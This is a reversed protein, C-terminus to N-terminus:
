LIKDKYYVKRSVVFSNKRQYERNFYDFYAGPSILGHINILDIGAQGVISDALLVCNTSLAFYTKFPGKLFKYFKGGLVEYVLSPYDDEPREYPLGKEEYVKAKPKWEYLNSYIEEIKDKVRTKQDESLRLGFAFITKGIYDHSFKIYADMDDMEILVGDSILGSLKYTDTDYTGYTMVKGEFCIDVHGFAGVGKESVHVLVELDQKENEKEYGLDEERIDETDFAENIKSLVKRPILALMFVPLNIRVRRKIKNKEEKPLGDLLADILFSLGYLLFFIGILNTLPLIADLPNLVILIGIVLLIFSEIVVYFRRPVRNARYQIYTLFRIIASVIAYIGFFIPLIGIVVLPKYFILGAMGINVIFSIFRSALTYPKKRIPIFNGIQFLGTLVFLVILLNLLNKVAFTVVEKKTLFIIGIFIYLIASILLTLITIDKNGLEKIDKLIKDSKKIIIGGYELM